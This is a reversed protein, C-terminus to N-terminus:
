ALSDAPRSTIERLHIIDQRPDVLAVQVQIQEGLEVWRNFRMALEIGLEEILILALSEDERLWRLMLAEWERDGSRNLYELTWYRNTQREVMTAEYINTGLGLMIEQLREVTFPLEDGRLHAKIQFHTLLDTYRRIPSTVQSYTNLGLSAHRSPTTAMESRPMCRRVACSRAPGVPILILEEEPPLEPQPQGRYPLPISNDQGYKAAVEGALIMMEAVLRRARNDEILDISVKDGSVKVTSEPMNINISGQSTRWQNRLKSAKAISEIEVEGPIRLQLMEEVDEYTLRYTPEITSTTIEYEAAAGSDDLIVGFSLACCKQGQRLSMPGTALDPPFMPIMGTPLYITVSRKRAELDFEDEPSLLRTPDAIHIWLKQRGDPLGEVSLGDDIEQTSEDDITYVKLHTLDVRRSADLDVPPNTLLEHAVTQMKHSFHVPSQSRRLHINEHIDWWGLEVLLNFVAPQTQSRGVATLYEGLKAPPIDPNLVYKELVELRQKDTDQWEVPTGALQQQVRDIFGQQERERQEKVTAQHKLEAVQTRTRPEYKDEKKNKFYIKDESLLVHAAYCLAPSRDSYLLDALAPPDVTEGEEVLMEWAVELSDPDINPAVEAEFKTIEAPQKCTIGTVEYTIDRPHLTHPQSRADIAIWHKKGEPRDAIALRREGNHWFEVLTGKEVGIRKRQLPANNRTTQNRDLRATGSSSNDQSLRSSRRELKRHITSDRLYLQGIALESKQTSLVTQSSQFL